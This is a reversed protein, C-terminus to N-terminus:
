VVSALEFWFASADRILMHAPPGRRALTFADQEVKGGLLNFGVSCCVHAEAPEGGADHIVVIDGVSMSRVKDGLPREINHRRFINGFEMADEEGAYVAVAFVPEQSNQPDVVHPDVLRGDQTSVQIWTYKYRM